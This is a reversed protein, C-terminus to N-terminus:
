GGAEVRGGCQVFQQKRGPQSGGEGGALAFVEELGEEGIHAGGSARRSSQRTKVTSRVREDAPRPSAARLSGRPRRGRPGGPGRGSRESRVGRRRGRSRRLIRRRLTTRLPATQPRGSCQHRTWTPRPRCRTTRTARHPPAGGGAPGRRQVVECLGTEDESGAAALRPHSAERQCLAGDGGSNGGVLLRKEAADGQPQALRRIRPSHASGDRGPPRQSSFAAEPRRRMRHGDRRGRHSNGQGSATPAGTVATKRESGRWAHATVRSPVKVAPTCARAQEM